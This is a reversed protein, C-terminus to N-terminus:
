RFKKDIMINGKFFICSFNMVIASLLFAHAIESEERESLQKEWGFCVCLMGIVSASFSGPLISTSLTLFCLMSM